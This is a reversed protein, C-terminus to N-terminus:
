DVIWLHDNPLTEAMFIDQRYWNAVYKWAHDLFDSANANVADVLKPDGDLAEKMLRKMEERLEDIARQFEESSHDVIEHLRRTLNSARLSTAIHECTSLMLIESPRCEFVLVHGESRVHPAPTIKDVTLSHNQAEGDKYSVILGFRAAKNYASQGSLIDHM